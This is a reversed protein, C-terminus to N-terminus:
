GSGLGIPSDGNWAANAPIGVAGLGAMLWGLPRGRMQEFGSSGSEAVPMDDNIACKIKRNTAVLWFQDRHHASWPPLPYVTGNRMM